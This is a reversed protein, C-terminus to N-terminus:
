VLVHLVEMGLLRIRKGLVILLGDAQVFPGNLDLQLGVGSSSLAKVAGLQMGLSLEVYISVKFQSLAEDFKSASHSLHHIQIV